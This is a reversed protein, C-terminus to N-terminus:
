FRDSTAKAGVGPGTTVVDVSAMGASGIPLKPLTKRVEFM